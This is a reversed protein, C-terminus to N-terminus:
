YLSTRGLKFNKIFYFFIFYIVQNLIIQNGELVSKVLMTKDVYYRNEDIISKFNSFGPPTFKKPM